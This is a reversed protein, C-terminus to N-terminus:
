QHPCISCEIVSVKYFCHYKYGRYKNKKKIHNLCYELKPATHRLHPGNQIKYTKNNPGSQFSKQVQIDRFFFVYNEFVGKILSSVKPQMSAPVFQRGFSYIFVQGVSCFLLPICFFIQRGALTSKKTQKTIVSWM